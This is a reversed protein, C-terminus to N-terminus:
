LVNGNRSNLEKIYFHISDPLPEGIVERWLDNLAAIGPQAALRSIHALATAAGPHPLEPFSAASRIM